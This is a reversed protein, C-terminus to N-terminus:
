GVRHKVRANYQPTEAIKVLNNAYSEAPSKSVLSKQYYYIYNQSSKPTPEQTDYYQQQEQEYYQVNQDSGSPEGYEM